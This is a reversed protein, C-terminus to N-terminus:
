AAGRLVRRASCKWGATGPARAHMPKARLLGRRGGCRRRVAAAGGLSLVEEEEMSCAKGTCLQKGM